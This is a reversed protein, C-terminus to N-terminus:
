LLFGNAFLLKLDNLKNIVGAHWQPHGCLNLYM